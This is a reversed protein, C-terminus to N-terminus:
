AAILHGVCAGTAAGRIDLGDNCAGAIDNMLIAMSNRDIPHWQWIAPGQRERGALWLEGQRLPAPGDCQFGTLIPGVARSVGPKGEIGSVPSWEASRLYSRNSM